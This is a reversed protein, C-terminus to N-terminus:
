YYYKKKCVEIYLCGFLETIVSSKYIILRIM